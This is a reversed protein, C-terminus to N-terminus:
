MYLYAGFVINYFLIVYKCEFYIYTSYFCFVGALEVRSFFDTILLTETTSLFIFYSKSRQYRQTIGVVKIFWVNFVCTLFKVYVLWRCFIRKKNMSEFRFVITTNILVSILCYVFAVFIFLFTCLDYKLLHKNSYEYSFIDCSDILNKIKIRHWFSTLVHLTYRLRLDLLWPSSLIELFAPPIFRRTEVPTSALAVSSTELLRSFRSLSSFLCRRLWRLHGLSAMFGPQLYLRRRKYGM